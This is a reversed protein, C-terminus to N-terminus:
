PIAPLTSFDELYSAALTGDKSFIFARPVGSSAFKKYISPYAKVAHPMTLELEEWMQAIQQETGSRSICVTNYSTPIGLRDDIRPLERWCDQCAPDFFIIISMNDRFDSDSVTSGDSLEIIFEPMGSGLPLEWDNVENVCSLLTSLIIVPLLKSLKM